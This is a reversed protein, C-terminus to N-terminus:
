TLAYIGTYKLAWKLIFDVKKLVGGRKKLPHKTFCINKKSKYRFNISFDIEM